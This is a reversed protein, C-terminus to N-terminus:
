IMVSKPKIDGSTIEEKKNQIWIRRKEGPLLDFYEDSLKIDDDLGFHVGHAYIDTSIEFFGQILDIESLRLDPSGLNQRCMENSRLCAPLINDSGEAKAYFVGESFDYPDTEIETKIKMKSFPQIMIDAKNTNKKSGAFSIYGYEINIHSKEPMDNLINIELGKDGERLVIRVPSFARKVFYWSIKRNLYYDIISWGIEGWADNYSWILAGHNNEAIRMSDLAYGLMMGQFLGSYLLYEDLTLDPGKNYQKKIAEVLTDKEWTNTHHRWIDSKMDVEESGYYRYVSSKRTGGPCGFESVFRYDGDDYLGPDIRGELDNELFLWHHSDGCLSGNIQDKKGGYPSSNWYPIDPCNNNIIGPIIRNYLLTGAQSFIYNLENFFNKGKYNLLHAHCENNGCLLVTSPHNRLRVTLYEAEKIVEDRFM